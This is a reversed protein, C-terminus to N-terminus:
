AAKRNLLGSHMFMIQAFIASFLNLVPVYNFLAAIMSLKTTHKIKKELKFITRVDYSTPRNLLISWLWLMVIQGLVPVFIVILAPVFLAVFVLLAKLNVLISKAIAPTGIEGIDNYHKRAIKALLKESTMSTVIMVYITFLVYVILTSVLGSSFSQLWTGPVWSLYSAIFSSVMGNFAWVTILSLIGAILGIKAIYAIVSGSTMDSLSKVIIDRM